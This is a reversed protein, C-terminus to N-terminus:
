DGLRSLIIGLAMGAVFAVGLALAPQDSVADKTNRRLHHLHGRLEKLRKDADERLNRLDEAREDEEIEKKKPM